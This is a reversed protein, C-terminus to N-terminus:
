VDRKARRLWRLFLWVSAWVLNFVLAALGVGILIGMLPVAITDENTSIAGARHGAGVERQLGFYAWVPIGVLLCFNILLWIAM